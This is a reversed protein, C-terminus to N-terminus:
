LLSTHALTLEERSLAKSALRALGEAASRVERFLTMALLDNEPAEIAQGIDRIRVPSGDRYAVILDNYADPKLLDPHQRLLATMAEKATSIEEAHRAHLQEARTALLAAIETPLPDLLLAQLGAAVHAVDERSLVYYRAEFGARPYALLNAEAHPEFTPRFLTARFWDLDMFVALARDLVVWSPGVPTVLSFEPGNEFCLVHVVGEIVVDVEGPALFVRLELEPHRLIRALLGDFHGLDRRAIPSAAAERLVAQSEPGLTRAAALEDLVPRIARFRGINFVQILLEGAM